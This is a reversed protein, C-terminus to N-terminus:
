WYTRCRGGRRRTPVQTIVDDIQGIGTMSPLGSVFAEECPDKGLFFLLVDAGTLVRIAGEPHSPRSFFSSELGDAFSQTEGGSENVGEELDGDEAGGAGSGPRFAGRLGGHSAEALYPM